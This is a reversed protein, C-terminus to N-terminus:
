RRRRSCRARAVDRKGAHGGKKRPRRASSKTRALGRAEAGEGTAMAPRHGGRWIWSAFEIAGPILTEGMTDRPDINRKGVPPHGAHAHSALGRIEEHLRECAKQRSRDPEASSASQVLRSWKGEM